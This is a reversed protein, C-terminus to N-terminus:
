PVPPGTESSPPLPPPALGREATTSAAAAATSGSAGDGKFPSPAATAPLTVPTGAPAFGLSGLTTIPIQHTPPRQQVRVPARTDPQARMVTADSVLRFERPRPASTGHGAVATVVVVAAVVAASLSWPRRRPRWPRGLAFSDATTTPHTTRGSPSRKADDRFADM